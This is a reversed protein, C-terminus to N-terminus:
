NGSYNPADKVMTVDHPHAERLGAAAHHDLDGRMAATMVGNKLEIRLNM